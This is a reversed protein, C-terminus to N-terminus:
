MDIKDIMNSQEGPKIFAPVFSESATAAIHNDFRPPGFDGEQDKVSVLTVSDSRHQQAVQGDYGAGSSKIPKNRLDQRFIRRHQPHKFVTAGKYCRGGGRIQDM